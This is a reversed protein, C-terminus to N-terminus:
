NSLDVFFNELNENALDNARLLEFRLRQTNRSLSNTVLSGTLTSIFLTRFILCFRMNHFSNSGLSLLFSIIRHLWTPFINDSFTTDIIQTFLLHILSLLSKLYGNWREDDDDQRLSWDVHSDTVGRLYRGTSAESTEQLQQHPSDRPGMAHNIISGCVFTGIICAVWTLNINTNWKPFKRWAQWAM